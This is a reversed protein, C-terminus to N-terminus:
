SIDHTFYSLKFTLLKGLEGRKRFPANIPTSGSFGSALTM